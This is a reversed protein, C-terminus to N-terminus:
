LPDRFRDGFATAAPEWPLRILNQRVWSADGPSSCCAILASSWRTEDINHAILLNTLGDLFDDVDQGSQFKPLNTPLKSESSHSGSTRPFSIHDQHSDQHPTSLSSASHSSAPLPAPTLALIQDLENLQSVCTDLEGRLPDTRSRRQDDARLMALGTLQRQLSEIKTVLDQRAVRPDLSEVPDDIHLSPSSNGSLGHAM